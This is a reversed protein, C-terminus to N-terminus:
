KINAWLTGKKFQRAWRDLARSVKENIPLPVLFRHVNVVGHKDLYRRVRRLSASRRRAGAIIRSGKDGAKGNLYQELRGWDLEVFQLHKPYVVDPLYLFDNLTSIDRLLGRHLELEVRFVGLEKKWYCRVLKDTKRGGYYLARKKEENAVAALRASSQM